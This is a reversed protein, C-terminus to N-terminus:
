YVFLKIFFFFVILVIFVTISQTISDDLIKSHSACCFRYEICNDFYKNILFSRLQTVFDNPRMNKPIGCNEIDWFIGLPRLSM